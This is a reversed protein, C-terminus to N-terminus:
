QRRPHRDEPGPRRALRHLLGGSPVLRPSSDLSNPPSPRHFNPHQTPHKKRLSVAIAILIQINTNLLEQYKWMPNPVCSVPNEHFVCHIGRPPPGHLLDSRRLAIISVLWGRSAGRCVGETMEICATCGCQGNCRAAGAARGCGGGFKGHRALRIRRAGPAAVSRHRHTTHVVCWPIPDATAPWHARRRAPRRRCDRELSNDSDARIWVRGQGDAASRTRERM